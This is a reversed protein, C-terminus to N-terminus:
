HQMQLNESQKKKFKALDSGALNGDGVSTGRVTRPLDFHYKQRFM